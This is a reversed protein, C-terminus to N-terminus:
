RIVVKKDLIAIKPITMIGNIQDLEEVDSTKSCVNHVVSITESDEKYVYGITYCVGIGVYEEDIDEVAIWRSGSSSDLWKIHVVPMEHIKM